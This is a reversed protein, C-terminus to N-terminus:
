VFVHFHGSRGSTDGDPSAINIGTATVPVAVVNGQVSNQIGTILVSPPGQPASITSSKACGGAVLAVVCFLIVASKMHMLRRDTGSGGLSRRDAHVAIRRVPDRAHHPALQSRRDPERARVVD